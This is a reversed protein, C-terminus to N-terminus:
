CRRIAEDLNLLVACVATWAAVEAAPAREFPPLDGAAALTAAADPHAAYFELQRQLLEALPALEGAGPHRAVALRFGYTLRERQDGDRELLRQALGRAAEVYVRDNWLTLAMLPTNTRNRYATCVEHSPADFVAFSAYPAARKRFVYLGRRYREAVPSPQYTQGEFAAAARWLGEPQWPRVSPGGRRRDLLGAIALANDRVIEAPLPQSAMHALLRNDPDRARLAPGAVAQQRYTASTVLLRILAKQDFGGDVFERALWDLLQPHSPREGATGFDDPTAVLGRGFCRAWLRNVAVRGVLPHDPAVLWHALALRDRPGDPPKPLAAPVAPEVIDDPAAYDGRRLLRTPRRESRECMVSVVPVDRLLRRREDGLTALEALVSGAEPGHRERYDDLILGADPDGAASQARAALHQLDARLLQAVEAASLARDFWRVEDIRGTFPENDSCGIRLPDSHGIDGALEPKDEDDVPALPVDAGDVYLRLGTVKRSGDYTAMVHRWRHKGLPDRATLYIDDRPVRSGVLEFYPRGRSIGLTWGRAQRADDAWAVVSGGGDGDASEIMLWAGVTFADTAAVVGAGRCEIFADNGDLRLARDRVGDIWETKGIGAVVADPQEGDLAFHVPALPPAAPPEDGLERRFVGAARRVAAARERRTQELEDIRSQLEALRAGQAESPLRLFPRPNAENGVLGREEANDFFAYFGYYDRQSIPDHKHDHCEACGLTLGLWATSVTRVRDAVYRHRYEGPQGNDDGTVPHLRCFGTAIRQAVTAQPLMDGALQEITFRDFPMNANFADVVWDRWKWMSWEGDTLYGATDAFRALDLWDLAMREGYHPSGLLADVLREYADPADDAVFADVAEVAPPLGLLDLHLRRILTARDAAPAPRLGERELRALVFRDIDNQPWNGDTVAPVPPREPRVFAWHPAAPEPAPPTQAALLAATHM